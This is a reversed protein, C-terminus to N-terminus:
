IFLRDNENRMTIIIMRKKCKVFHNVVNIVFNHIIESSSLVSLTHGYEIMAKFKHPVNAMEESTLSSGDASTDDDDFSSRFSRRGTNELYKVITANTLKDVRTDDVETRICPFCIKWKKVVSASIINSGVFMETIACREGKTATFASIRYPRLSLLGTLHNPATLLHVEDLIVYKFDEIGEIPTLEENVDGDKKRTNLRGIYCILVDTEDHIVRDTELQQVRNPKDILKVLATYTQDMLTVSPLVIITKQKLFMMLYFFMITKGYGCQATFYSSGTENLSDLMRDVDEEQYPRLEIKLNYEVEPVIPRPTKFSKVGTRSPINFPVLYLDGPMPIFLSVSGKQDQRGRVYMRKQEILGNRYYYEYGEKTPIECSCLSKLKAPHNYSIIAAM